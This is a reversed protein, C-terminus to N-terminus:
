AGARETEKTRTWRRIRWALIAVGGVLVAAPFSWVLLANRPSPRALAEDGYNLRIWRLVADPSQGSEFRREIATRLERAQRTTCDILLRGPCYPSWVQAEVARANQAPDTPQANCAVLLPAVILLAHLLRRMSTLIAQYCGASAIMILTM